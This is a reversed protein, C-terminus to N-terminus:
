EEREEGDEDFESDLGNDKLWQDYPQPNRALSRARAISANSYEVGASDYIFRVFRIFPGDSTGDIDNNTHGPEEGFFGQFVMVLTRGIFIINSATQMKDDRICQPIDNRFRESISKLDSVMRAHSLGVDDAVFRYPSDYIDDFKIIKEALRDSMEAISKAAEIVRVRDATAKERKETDQRLQFVLTWAVMGVYSPDYLSDLGVADILRQGRTIFEVRHWPGYDDYNPDDIDM